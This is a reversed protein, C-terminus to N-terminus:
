EKWGALAQNVHRMVALINDFNRTATLNHLGCRDELIRSFSSLNAELETSAYKLAAAMKEAQALLQDFEKILEQGMSCVISGAEMVLGGLGPQKSLEKLRAHEPCKTSNM